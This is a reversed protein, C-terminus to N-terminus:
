LPKSTHIKTKDVRDWYEQIKDTHKYFDEKTKWENYEPGYDKWEVLYQTYRGEGKHKVVREVVFLNKDNITKGKATKSAGVAATAKPKCSALTTGGASKRANHPQSPPAAVPGKSERGKVNRQRSSAIAAM